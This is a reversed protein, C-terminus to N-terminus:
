RKEYILQLDNKINKSFAPSLANIMAIDIKVGTAKELDEKLDSIDFLTFTKGAAVDILLDIDSTVNFDERNFSGFIWARSIRTQSNFYDSLIQQLKLHEPRILAKINNKIEYVAIEEAAMLAKLKIDEDSVCDLIKESLWSVLLDDATVNFFRSLKLVNERSLKRLGREIKSLVAQDIERYAAVTRLPLRKEQRLRRITEGFSEM